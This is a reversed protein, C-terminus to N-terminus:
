DEVELPSVYTHRYEVRSRAREAGEETRHLSLVCYEDSFYSQAYVAFVEEKKEM